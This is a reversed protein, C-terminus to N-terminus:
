AVFVALPPGRLLVKVSRAKARFETHQQGQQQQRQQKCNLAPLARAAPVREARAKMLVSAAAALAMIVHTSM